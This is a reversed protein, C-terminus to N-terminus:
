KLLAQLTQWAEPTMPGIQKHVIRGGSDIVFTEPAGYVGWDLGAQGALDQAVVRYPNGHRLLWARADAPEDKYNFGIIEVGRRSLELLLPHEALCAACWSAWVNVLLPRGALDQDTLVAAQGELRPLSFAPMTQGVLPSPVERPDLSLGFGLLVTLGIVIALPLLHWPKM